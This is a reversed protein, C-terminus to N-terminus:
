TCRLHAAAVAVDIGKVRLRKHRSRAGSLIAVDRRPVNLIAAIFSVLEDNAAGDVPPANLRVLLADERTGALETKRARAIVRVNICIGATAPEIIAM